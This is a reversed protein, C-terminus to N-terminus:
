GLWLLNTRAGSLKSHFCGLCPHLVLKAKLRTFYFNSSNHLHCNGRELRILNPLINISEFVFSVQGDIM